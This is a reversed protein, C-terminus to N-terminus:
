TMMESTERVLIAIWRPLWAIVPVACFLLPLIFDSFTRRRVTARIAAGTVILPRRLGLPEAPVSQKLQHLVDLSHPSRVDGNRGVAVPDWGALHSTATPRFVDTGCIMQKLYNETMEYDTRQYRPLGQPPKGAWGSVVRIWEGAKQECYMRYLRSYRIEVDVDQAFRQRLNAPSALVLRWVFYAWGLWLAHVIVEPRHLKFLGLGLTTEDAPVGGAAVLLTLFISAAYADRREKEIDESDTKM